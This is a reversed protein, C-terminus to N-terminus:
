VDQLRRISCECAEPEGAEVAEANCDCNQVEPSLSVVGVATASRPCRVWVGPESYAVIWCKAHLRPHYMARGTSRLVNLTCGVTYLSFFGLLVAQVVRPLSLNETMPMLHLGKHQLCM